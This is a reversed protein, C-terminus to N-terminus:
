KRCEQACRHCGLLALPGGVGDVRAQRKHHLRSLDCQAVFGRQLAESSALGLEDDDGAVSGRQSLRLELVTHRRRVWQDFHGSVQSSAM